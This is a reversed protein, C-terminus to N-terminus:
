GAARRVSGPTVGAFRKFARCFAAESRYGLQEALEGVGCERGQLRAKAVRMRLRTVYQMPPEGVFEAFRAAFGSRSMGAESALTAVSWPREPHQHALMMARGVQPDRLARLWGEPMDNGTLCTRIAQIVLVDCLRTIITEGGPRPSKSEAAILRLTSQMWAADLMGAADLHVMDPLVADLDFAFPHELHIVGCLAHTVEGDGGYRLEAYHDSQSAHPVDLVCPTLVDKSTFIRHGRGHPVLVFDGAQVRIKGGSGADLECGGSTVAHFWVCGPMPPMTLGWPASLESRCYFSGTARLQHLAQDFPDM